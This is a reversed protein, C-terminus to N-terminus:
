CCTLVAGAALAGAALVGGALVRLIDTLCHQGWIALPLQTMLALLVYASCCVASAAPVVKEYGWTCGLMNSYSPISTLMSQGCGSVTHMGDAVFAPSPEQRGLAAEQGLM